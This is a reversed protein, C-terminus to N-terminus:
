ADARLKSLFRYAGVVQLIKETRDADLSCLAEAILEACTENRETGPNLHLVTVGQCDIACIFGDDNKRASFIKGM